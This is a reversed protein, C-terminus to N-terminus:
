SGKNDQMKLFQVKKNGRPVGIEQNARQLQLPESWYSWVKNQFGVGLTRLDGSRYEKRDGGTIRGKHFAPRRVPVLNIITGAITSGAAGGPSSIHHATPQNEGPESDSV